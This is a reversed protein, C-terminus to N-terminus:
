SVKYLVNEEVRKNALDRILHNFCGLNLMTKIQQEVIPDSLGTELVWNLPFLEDGIINAAEYPEVKCGLVEKAWNSVTLTDSKTFSIEITTKGSFYCYLINKKM